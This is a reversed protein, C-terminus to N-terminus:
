RAVIGAWAPMGAMLGRALGPFPAPGIASELVSCAWLVLADTRPAGVIQVALPMGEDTMGAYISAAPLGLQNCWATFHPFLSNGAPLEALRMATSPYVPCIVLDHEDFFANIKAGLEGREVLAGLLTSRSVLAGTDAYARLSPDLFVRKDAMDDALQQCCAPWLAAHIANCRAVGPPDTHRISAGLTRFISGATAVADHVDSEVEVPLGLTSSLAIRMADPSPQCKLGLEYDSGDFPLAYWDRNDPRSIVTLIRAADAVCRTMPGVHSLLAFPGRPAHPVRGFTPKFGFTGTFAAPIRISGGGDTGIAAAPMGLAVAAAAGGSSGGPTRGLDWPNRTIGTLQSDTVIKHAHDPLTTKGICIAGAERLRAACPSDVRAPEAPTTRSGYRIPLGTVAINDKISVPVGDLGGLPTGRRWREESARASELVDDAVACYANVAPDFSRVRELISEAVEVPSAAGSEYLNCMERATLGCLGDDM